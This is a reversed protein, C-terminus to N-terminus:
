SGAAERHRSRARRERSPITSASNVAPVASCGRPAPRGTKTGSTGPAGSRSSHATTQSEGANAATSEAHSRGPWSATSSPSRSYSTTQVSSGTGTRAAPWTQRSMASADPATSSTAESRM